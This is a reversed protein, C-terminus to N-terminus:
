GEASTNRIKDAIGTTLAILGTLLLVAAIGQVAYSMVVVVWNGSGRGINDDYLEMGTLGLLVGIALLVVGIVIKFYAM